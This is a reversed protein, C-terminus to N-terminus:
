ILRGFWGAVHRRRALLLVLAGGAFSSTIQRKENETGLQSGLRQYVGRARRTPPPSPRAARPAPSRRRPQPDPPVARTETGGQRRARSPSRATRGHRARGHLGPNRRKGGGPRRSRTTPREDLRRRVAARHREPASRNRRPQRQPDAAGRRDRRRDRHRREADAPRAGARHRRPRADPSQLVRPTGNFAMVGINVGRPVGDVFNRAARAPPSWARPSSTPPWWRAPSVDTALMISAREVPVAVTKQPKAAAVILVALALPFALMPAHRRWGPRRPAVSPSCRPRRSRPRPARRDRQQACRVLVLAAAAGGPALVLPAAFSM